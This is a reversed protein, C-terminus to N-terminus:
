IIDKLKVGKQIAKQPSFDKIWEEDLMIKGSDPQILGFITKLLTTKGAGNEGVLAYMKGQKITVSIEDNALVNPFRKTINRVELLVRSKM